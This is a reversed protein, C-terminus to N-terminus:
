VNKFGGTALIITAVKADLIQICTYVYIYGLLKKKRVRFNQQYTILFSALGWILQLKQRLLWKKNISTSFFSGTIKKKESKVNLNTELNLDVRVRGKRVPDDWGLPIGVFFRLVVYAFKLRHAFFKLLNKFIHCDSSRRSISAFFIIWRCIEIFPIRTDM